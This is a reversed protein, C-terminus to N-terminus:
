RNCLKAYLDILKKEENEWNFKTEVIHEGRRGMEMAEVPHETVWDIANAIEQPDLPNVFIACNSDKLLSRWHAFDSCIIPISASLYEFMKIPISNLHNPEPYLAVLGAMSKGMITAVEERPVFGLEEVNEWGKQRVMDDRLGSENITGAIFLKVPNKTLGVAQVIEVAGRMRAVSGVYCVAQEKKEDTPKAKLEEIFPFNNVIITNNNLNGFRDKISETATVIADINKVVYNEYYKLGCAMFPRVYRPIYGKSMTQRPLDEHSDYIVKAGMKKLEIAFPLLEPDHLHYIEANLEKARDVVARAHKTMRYLRSQEKLAVGFVKVDQKIQDEVGTVVLHTDYGAKQLSVAEKHFIRVDFPPHVSSVHCIKIKSM